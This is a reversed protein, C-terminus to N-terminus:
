SFWASRCSLAEKIHAPPNYHRNACFQLTTQPTLGGLRRRDELNRSIERLHLAVGADVCTAEARASGDAFRRHLAKRFPRDAISGAPTPHLTLDDTKMLVEFMVPDRVELASVTLVHPVIRRPLVPGPHRRFLGAPRKNAYLQVAGCAISHRVGPARVMARRPLLTTSASWAEFASIAVRTSSASAAAYASMSRAAGASHRHSSLHVAAPHSSQLGRM